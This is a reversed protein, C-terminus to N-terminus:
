AQGRTHGGRRRNMCEEPTKPIGDSDAGYYHRTRRICDFVLDPVVVREELGAVGRNRVVLPRWPFEEHRLEREAVGDHQRVRGQHRDIGCATGTTDPQNSLQGWM